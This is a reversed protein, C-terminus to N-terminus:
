QLAEPDHDIVLEVVRENFAQDLRKSSFRFCPTYAPKGRPTRIVESTASNFQIKGPIQARLRGTTERYVPVDPIIMGNPFQVEAFGRLADKRVRKFGLLKMREGSV